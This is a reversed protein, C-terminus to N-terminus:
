TDQLAELHFTWDQQGCGQKIETNMSLALGRLQMEHQFLGAFKTLTHMVEEWGMGLAAVLDIASDNNPDNLVVWADDHRVSVVHHACDVAEWSRSEDGTDNHKHLTCSVKGEAHPKLRFLVDDNIVDDSGASHGRDGFYFRMLAACIKHVKAPGLFQRAHDLLLTQGETISLNGIAGFLSAASSIQGHNPALMEQLGALQLLVCTDKLM